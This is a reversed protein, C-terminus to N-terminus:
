RRGPRSCRPSLTHLSRNSEHGRGTKHPRQPCPKQCTQKQRCIQLVYADQGYTNSTTPHGNTQEYTHNNRTAEPVTLCIFLSWTQTSTRPTGRQMFLVYLIPFRASLLTVTRSWFRTYLLRGGASRSSLSSYVGRSRPLRNTSCIRTREELHSPASMEWPYHCTETSNGLM